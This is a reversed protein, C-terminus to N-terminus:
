AESNSVQEKLAPQSLKQIHPARCLSLLLSLGTVMHSNVNVGGICLEVQCATSLTWQLTAAFSDLRDRLEGPLLVVGKRVEM